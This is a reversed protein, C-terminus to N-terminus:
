YTPLAHNPLRPVGGFDSLQQVCDNQAHNLLGRRGLRSGCGQSNHHTLTSVYESAMSVGTNESTAAGVHARTMALHPATMM